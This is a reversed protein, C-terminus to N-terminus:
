FKALESLESCINFLVALVKLFSKREYFFRLAAGRQCSM